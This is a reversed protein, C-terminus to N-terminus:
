FHSATVTLPQITAKFAPETTADTFDVLASDLTIEDVQVRVPSEPKKEPKSEPKTDKNSPPPTAEPPPELGLKTLNLSGDRERKVRLEPNKILISKLHASKGFVDVLETQVDLLPLSFVPQDELTTIVLNNLAVAGAVTLTPSKEKFQTFAVTLRTDLSASPLKFTLKGPVYELYTPIDFKDIDLHMETAFSDDFPKTQGKLGVPTGNVVARFEPTTFIKVSAPLNSLFPIILTLDRITHDTHKPRDRFDIRGGLLQINNLSFRLPEADQKPPPPPQAPKASFAELLDSFNYTLDDHRTISVHPATLRIESVVPGLRILSMGELNVFLEEFAVFPEPSRREKIMFGNIQLTMAFPNLRIEQITTERHLLETLKKTLISKLLPPLGFFGILTFATLLGAGWLAIKKWRVLSPSPPAPPAPPLPETPPPTTPTAPDDAM